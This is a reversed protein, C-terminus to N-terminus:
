GRMRFRSDPPEVWIEDRLPEDQFEALERARRRAVERAEAETDFVGVVYDERAFTDHGYVRWPGSPPAEAPPAAFPPAVTRGEGRGSWLKWALSLACSGFVAATLVRVPTDARAGIWSGAVVLLVLVLWAARRVAGGTGRAHM